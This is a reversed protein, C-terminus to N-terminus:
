FIEEFGETADSLELSTSQLHPAWGEVLILPLPLHIITVYAKIISTPVGTKSKVRKADM